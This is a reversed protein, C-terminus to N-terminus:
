IMRCLSDKRGQSRVIAPNASGANHCPHRRLDKRDRYVHHQHLSTSHYTFFHVTQIHLYDVFFLALALQPLAEAPRAVPDQLQKYRHPCPPTLKRLRISNRPLLARQRRFTASDALQFRTHSVTDPTPRDATPFSCSACPNQV